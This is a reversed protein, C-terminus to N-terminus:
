PAERKTKTPSPSFGYLKAPNDVLIRRRTGAEPAWLALADLLAADSPMTGQFSSHPWDSGWLMRGPAADVLQRAFPALSPYPPLPDDFRNPASLKLWCNASRLLDLLTRGSADDSGASLRVRAFHDLVVPIPLKGIWDALRPLEAGAVHLQLHWGLPAIRAALRDLARLREALPIDDGPRGEAAGRLHARVGRIGADHMGALTADATRESALAVGRAEIGAQELALMGDLTLSNDHYLTPQVLVARTLGLARLVQAYQEVGTDAAPTYRRPERYPYRPPGGFVHAHCDCAGAPVTFTPAGAPPLPAPCAPPGGDPAVAEPDVAEPRDAGASGVPKSPNAAGAAISDPFTTPQNV